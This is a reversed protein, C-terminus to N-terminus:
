DILVLGINYYGEPNPVEEPFACNGGAQLEGWGLQRGLTFYDIYAVGCGVPQVDKFMCYGSKELAPCKKIGACKTVRCPGSGIPAAMMYGGYYAAQRIRREMESLIRLRIINRALMAKDPPEGGGLTYYMDIEIPGMDPVKEIVPPVVKFVIASHYDNIFEQMEEFPFNTVMPCHANTNLWRCSPSLCGIYLSRLDQPIDRASIIRADVSGLSLALQRYKELNQQFGEPAAPWMAPRFRPTDDERPPSRRVAGAVDAVEIKRSVQQWWREFNGLQEETFKGSQGAM